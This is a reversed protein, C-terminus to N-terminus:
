SRAARGRINQEAWAQAGPMGSRLVRRVAADADYGTRRLDVHDSLMLWCAAGESSTGVSGPRVVHHGAIHEEGQRHGDGAVILRAHAPPRHPPEGEGDLAHCFFIEGLDESLFRVDHELHALYDRQHGTVREAAWRVVPGFPAAEAAKKAMLLDYCSVVAADLPGAVVTAWDGLAMLIGLTEVPLPGAAVNGGVVVKDAGARRVERLAAELAPLNAQIDYLAAIRM